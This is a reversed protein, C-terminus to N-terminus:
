YLPLVSPLTQRMVVADMWMWYGYLCLFVFFCFFPRFVSDPLLCFVWLEEGPLSCVLPAKIVHYWATDEWQFTMGIHSLVGVWVSLFGLKNTYYAQHSWSLTETWTRPNLQPPPLLCAASPCLPTSNLLPFLQVCYSSIKIVLLFIVLKVKSYKVMQPFRNTTLRWM